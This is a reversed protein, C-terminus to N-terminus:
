EDKFMEGLRKKYDLGNEELWEKLLLRYSTQVLKGLMLPNQDKIGYTNIILRGLKEVYEDNM